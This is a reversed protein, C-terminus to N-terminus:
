SLTPNALAWGRTSSQINRPSLALKYAMSPVQRVTPEVLKLFRLLDDYRCIVLAKESTINSRIKYALFLAAQLYEVSAQSFGNTSLVVVPNSREAGLYGDDMYWVAIAEPTLLLDDPVQKAGSGYWRSREKALERMRRTRVGHQHSEAVCPREFKNQITVRHPEYWRLEPMKSMLWLNYDEHESKHRIQLRGSIEKHPEITADGLMAGEFYPNM